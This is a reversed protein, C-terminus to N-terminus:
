IPSLLSGLLFFPNSALKLIRDNFLWYKMSLLIINRPWTKLQFDGGGWVKVVLKIGSYNWFARLLFFLSLVWYDELYSEQPAKATLKLSNIEYPLHFFCVLSGFSFTWVKPKQDWVTAHKQQSCKRLHIPYCLPFFSICRPSITPLYRM